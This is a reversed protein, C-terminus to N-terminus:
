QGAGNKGRPSRVFSTCAQVPEKHEPEDKSFGVCAAVGPWRQLNFHAQICQAVKLSTLEDEETAALSVGMEEALSLLRELALSDLARQEM